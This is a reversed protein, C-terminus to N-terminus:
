IITPFFIPKDLQIPYFIWFISGLLVPGILYKGLDLDRDEQSIRSFFQEAM